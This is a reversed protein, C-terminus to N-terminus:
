DGKRKRFCSYGYDINEIFQQLSVCNKSYETM